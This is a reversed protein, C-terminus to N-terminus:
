VTPTPCKEFLDVLSQIYPEFFLPSYCLHTPDKCSLLDGSTANLSLPHIDPRSLMLDFMNVWAVGRSAPCVEGDAEGEAVGEAAATSSALRRAASSPVAAAAAATASSNVFWISGNVAPGEIVRVAMKGTWQHLTRAEERGGYGAAFPHTAYLPGWLVPFCGRAGGFRKFEQPTLRWLAADKFRAPRGAGAYGEDFEGGPNARHGPTNESWVVLRNPDAMFRQVLPSRFTAEVAKQGDEASRGGGRWCSEYHAGAVALVLVDPNVTAVMRQEDDAWLGGTACPMYRAARPFSPLTLAGDAFRQARRHGRVPPTARSALFRSLRIM